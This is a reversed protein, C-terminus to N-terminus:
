VAVGERKLEDFRRRCDDQTKCVKDFPCRECDQCFDDFVSYGAPDTMEEPEESEEEDTEEDSIGLWEFVTESEFWLLDNLQTETMGEPYIDELTSELAGWLGAAQIRNYTDVAGSWPAYGESFDKYLRM